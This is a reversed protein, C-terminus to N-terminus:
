TTHRALAPYAAAVPPLAISFRAAALQATGEASGILREVAANLQEMQEQLLLLGAWVAEDYLLYYTVRAGVVGGHRGYTHHDTYRAPPAFVAGDFRLPRPDRLRETPEVGWRARVTSGSPLLVWYLRQIEVGCAVARTDYESARGPGEGLSKVEIAPQWDLALGEQVQSQLLQKLAPLDSAKITAGQYEAVFQGSNKWLYIPVTVLPASRGYRAGPDRYEYDEVKVRGRVGAM